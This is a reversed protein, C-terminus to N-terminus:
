PFRNNRFRFARRRVRLDCQGCDPMGKVAGAAQAPGPLLFVRCQKFLTSLGCM